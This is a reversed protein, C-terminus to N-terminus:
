KGGLKKELGTLEIRAEKLRDSQSKPWNLIDDIVSVTATTIILTDNLESRHDNSKLPKSLLAVVKARHEVVGSKTGEVRGMFKKFDANAALREV